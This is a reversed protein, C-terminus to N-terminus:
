KEVEWAVFLHDRPNLVVLYPLGYIRRDLNLEMIAYPRRTDDGLLAERVAKIRDRGIYVARPDLGQKKIAHVQSAIERMTDDVVTQKKM